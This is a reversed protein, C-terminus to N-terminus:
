LVKSCLLFMWLFHASEEKKGINIETIEEGEGITGDSHEKMEEPEGIEAIESTAKQEEKESEVAEDTFTVKDVDKEFSFVSKGTELKSIYQRTVNLRQALEKQSMHAKIRLEKINNQM